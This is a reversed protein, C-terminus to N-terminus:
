HISFDAPAKLDTWTLLLWFHTNSGASETLFVPKCQVETYHAYSHFTGACQTNRTSYCVSVRKSKLAQFFTNGKSDKYQQAYQKTEDM